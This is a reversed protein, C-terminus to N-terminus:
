GMKELLINNWSGLILMLNNSTSLQKGYVTGAPCVSVTISRSAVKGRYGTYGGCLKGVMQRYLFNSDNRNPSDTTKSTKARNISKHVASLPIRPVASVLQRGHFFLQLLLSVDMSSSSNYCGSKWPLLVSRM